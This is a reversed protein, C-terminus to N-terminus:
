KEWNKSLSSELKPIVDPLIEKEADLMSKEILSVYIDKKSEEFESVTEDHVLNVVPFKLLLKKCEKRIKVLSSKLISSGTSQIRHNRGERIISSLIKSAERDGYKKPQITILGNKDIIKYAPIKDFFRKFGILSEAYGNIVTYSGNNNFKKWARPIKNAVRDLVGQAQDTDCDLGLEKHFVMVKYIGAGYVIAFDINKVLTYEKTPSGDENKKKIPKNFVVNEGMYLHLNKDEKNLQLWVPEMSDQTAILLEQGGFDCTFIVNDQNQATFCERYIKDRKITQMPPATMANRGSAAGIQWIKPHLRNTIPNIFEIFNMGFSSIAKQAERYKVIPESISKPIETMLTLHSTDPVQYGLKWLLPKLQEDSDYNIFPDGFLDTETVSSFLADMEKKYIYAQEEQYKILNMWKNKDLYFGNYQIEGYSPLVNNELNVAKQLSHEIIKPKQKELILLPYIIDKAAYQLQKESFEGRFNIFSSREEKDVNIGLYREAMGKLSFYGQTKFHVIGCNLMLEHLYTDILAESQIGLHRLFQYDFALNVGVKYKTEDELWPKLKLINVKRTDIIYQIDLTGIQLLLLTDSHPDLGTAEVDLSCKTLKVIEPLYLDFKDQTDIFVFNSEIM